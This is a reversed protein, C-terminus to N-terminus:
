PSVRTRRTEDDDDRPGDGALSPDYGILRVATVPFSRKRMEERRGEEERDRVREKKKEVVKGKMGNKRRFEDEQEERRTIASELYTGGVSRGMDSKMLDQLEKKTARKKKKEQEIAREAERVTPGERIGPIYGGSGNGSQLAASRLLDRSPRGTTSTGAM